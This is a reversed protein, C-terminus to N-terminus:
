FTYNVGLTIIHARYNYDAMIQGGFNPQMGFSKYGIGIGWNKTLDYDLGAILQLCFQSSTEAAATTVSGGTATRTLNGTKFWAYGPGIGAYPHFRGDPYRVKFNVFFAHVTNDGDITGNITSYTKSNDYGMHGIYNYEIEATILRRLIPPTYGTKVGMLYGKNLDYDTDPNPSSSNDHVTLFPFVYGGVIGVYFSGKEQAAALSATLMIMIMILIVAIKKMKGRDKECIIAIPM